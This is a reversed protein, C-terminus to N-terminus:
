RFDVTWTQAMIQEARTRLFREGLEKSHDFMLAKHISNTMSRIQFDGPECKSHEMYYKLILVCLEWGNTSSTAGQDKCYQLVKKYPSTVISDNGEEKPYSQVELRQIEAETFGKSAFMNGDKTIYVEYADKKVLAMSKMGRTWAKFVTSFRTKMAGYAKVDLVYIVGQFHLKKTKEAIEQYVLYKDYHNLFTRLTESTGDGIDDLRITVKIM